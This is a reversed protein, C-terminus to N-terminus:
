KRIYEGGRRYENPSVGYQTRFARSFAYVSSYNLREAIQTVSMGGDRLLYKANELRKHSYYEMLGQGMTRKFLNSLYSYNYNLAESVETLSKMSFLHTDIYSIAQYCLSDAETVGERVEERDRDGLIRVTYIAIQEIVDTMIREYYLEKGNIERIGQRVLAAVHDSEFIRKEASRCSEAIRSLGEALTPEEVMFSFFDFRLPDNGDSVIKHLEEPFAIHIDGTRVEIPVGNSYIEGKGSTVVTLEYVGCPQVHAEIKNSPKCYLMGTQWLKYAGFEAPAGAYRTDLHYKYEM